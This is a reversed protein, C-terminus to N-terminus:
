REAWSAGPVVPTISDISEDGPEVACDLLVFLHDADLSFLHVIGFDGSIPRRDIGATVLFRAGVENFLLDAAARVARKEVTLRLTDPQPRAAALCSAGIREKM